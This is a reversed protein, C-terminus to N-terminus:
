ILSALNYIRHQDFDPAYKRASTVLGRENKFFKYIYPKDLANPDSLFTHVEEPDAMVLVPMIPGIFGFAPLAYDNLYKYLYDSIDPLSILNNDIVHFKIANRSNHSNM